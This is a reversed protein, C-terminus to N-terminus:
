QILIVRRAAPPAGGQEERFVVMCGEDVAAVTSDSDMHMFQTDVDQTGTSGVTFVDFHLSPKHEAETSTSGDYIREMISTTNNILLKTKTGATSTTENNTAAWVIALYDGTATFNVNKSGGTFDAYSNTSNTTQTESQAFDVVTSISDLNVGLINYNDVDPTGTSCQAQLDITHASADPVTYVYMIVMPAYEAADEADWYNDTYVTSTDDIQFRLQTFVSTSSQEGLGRGLILWDEGSNNAPITISGGLDTWSSQCDTQTGGNEANSRLYDTNLAISGLDIGVIGGNATRVDPAGNSRVKIQFTDTSQCSECIYWWQMPVTFGTGASDPEVAPTHDTIETDNKEFSTLVLAGADSDVTSGASFLILWDSTTLGDGSGLEVHEVPTTDTASTTGTNVSEAFGVAWASPQILLSSAILCITLRM